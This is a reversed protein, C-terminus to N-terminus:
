QLKDIIEQYEAVKENLNVFEDGDYWWLGVMNGRYHGDFPALLGAKEHLDDIIECQAKNDIKIYWIKELNLNSNFKLPNKDADWIKIKENFKSIQLDFEYAVCEDENEFRKGDEAEYYTITKM